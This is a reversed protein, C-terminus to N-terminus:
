DIRSERTTIQGAAGSEVCSRTDEFGPFLQRAFFQNGHQTTSTIQFSVRAINPTSTEAEDVACDLNARSPRFLDYPDRECAILDIFNTAVANQEFGEREFRLNQGVVNGRLRCFVFCHTIALNGVHQSVGYERDFIMAEELM